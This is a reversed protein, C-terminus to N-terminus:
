TKSPSWIIIESVSICILKYGIYHTQKTKKRSKKTSIRDRDM